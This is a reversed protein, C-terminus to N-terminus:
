CLYFNPIVHSFNISHSMKMGANNWNGSPADSIVSSNLDDIKFPMPFLWAAAAEMNNFPIGLSQDFCKATNEMM